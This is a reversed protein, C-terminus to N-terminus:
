DRSQGLVWARGGLRRRWCTRRTPCPRGGSRPTGRWSWAHHTTRPGPGSRRRRGQARMSCCGWAASRHPRRFPRSPAVSLVLPGTPPWNTHTQQAHRPLLQGGHRKGSRPRGCAGGAEFVCARAGAAPHGHVAQAHACGVREGGVAAAASAFRHTPWCLPHKSSPQVVAIPSAPRIGGGSRRAHTHSALSKPGGPHPNCRCCVRFDVAGGLGAASVVRGARSAAWAGGGEM